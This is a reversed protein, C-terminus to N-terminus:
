FLNMFQKGKKVTTKTKGIVESNQSEKSIKMKIFKGSKSARRRIYGAKPIL